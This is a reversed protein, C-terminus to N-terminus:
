DKPRHRERFETRMSHKAPDESQMRQLERERVSDAGLQEVDQRLTELLELLYAIQPREHFSEADHRQKPLFMMHLDEVPRQFEPLYVDDIHAVAFNHLVEWDVLKDLYARVLLEFKETPFTKVDTTM